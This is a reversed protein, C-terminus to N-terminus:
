IQEKHDCVQYTGINYVFLFKPLYKIITISKNKKLSERSNYEEDFAHSDNKRPEDVQYAFYVFYVIESAWNKHSEALKESKLFDM